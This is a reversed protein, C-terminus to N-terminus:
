IYTYIYVSLYFFIYMLKSSKVSLVDTYPVKLMDMLFVNISWLFMLLFIVLPVRLMAPEVANTDWIAIIWKESPTPITHQINQVKNMLYRHMQLGQEYTLESIILNAM